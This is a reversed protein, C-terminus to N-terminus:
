THDHVRTGPCRKAEGVYTFDCLKCSIFYIKEKMKCMGEKEALRALSVIKLAALSSRQLDWNGYLLLNLKGYLDFQTLFVLHKSFNLLFPFSSSLSLNKMKMKVVYLTEDVEELVVISVQM